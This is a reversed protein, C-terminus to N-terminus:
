MKEILARNRARDALTRLKLNRFGKPLRKEPIIEMDEPPYLHFVMLINKLLSDKKM